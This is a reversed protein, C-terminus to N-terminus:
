VEEFKLTLYSDGYQKYIETLGLVLVDMLLNSEKSVAETFRFDILNDSEEKGLFFRKKKSTKTDDEKSDLAYADETFQDIGNITNIVLMSVAACVIVKGAQEFGAHGSCRIGRYQEQDKFITISIM